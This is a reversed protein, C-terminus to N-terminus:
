RSLDTNPTRARWILRNANSGQGIELRGISHLAHWTSGGSIVQRWELRYDRRQVVALASKM